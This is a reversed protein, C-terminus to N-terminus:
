AYGRVVFVTAGCKEAAEIGVNSDEFIITDRGLVRYFQMAKLFGEPDPKKRQVDEGSIILEFVELKDYYKLIEECNKRSATTVIAIYYTNQLAEILDFLGKNIVAKNLFEKYCEKKLRHVEEVNASDKTIQLLYERYHKGNCQQTFYDYDLNIGYNRLAKAYAYYNVKRTDFLTGDLDFIALKSKIINM